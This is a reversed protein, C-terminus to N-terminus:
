NYTQAIHSKLYKRFLQHASLNLLALTQHRWNRRLNVANLEELTSTQHTLRRNCALGTSKVGEPTVKDM